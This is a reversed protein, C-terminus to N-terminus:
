ALILRQWINLRRLGFRIPQGPETLACLSIQLEGIRLTHMAKESILIRFDNVPRDFPEIRMVGDPLHLLRQGPELETPMGAGFSKFELATLVLQGQVVTFIESVPTRNVSHIYGVSILEGENIPHSFLVSGNEAHTLILYSSRVSVSLVLVAVIIVGTIIGAAIRRKM